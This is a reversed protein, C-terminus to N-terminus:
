TTKLGSILLKAELVVADGLQLDQATKLTLEVLCPDLSVKVFSQKDRQYVEAIEGKLSVEQSEIIQNM